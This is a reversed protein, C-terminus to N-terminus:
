GALRARGRKTQDAAMILSDAIFDLEPRTLRAPLRVDCARMLMARTRPLDPIDGIFRWNWFARANDQSMGFVQVKVGAEFAGASMPEAAPNPWGDRPTILRLDTLGFNLMARAAAGINEGLQPTHLLIAPLSM